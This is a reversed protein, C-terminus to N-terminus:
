AACPRCCCHGTRFPRPRLLLCPPPWLVQALLTEAEGYYKQAIMIKCGACRVQLGLSM